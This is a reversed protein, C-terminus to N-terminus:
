EEIAPYLRRLKIRADGTTFRWDIRRAAANRREAWAAVEREMTPRDALRRDLCQRQLVGLEIEAM